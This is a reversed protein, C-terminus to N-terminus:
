FTLNNVHMKGKMKINYLETWNLGWTRSKTIGHVAAHWAERDMMLGPLRSLSMDMRNTIGDMRNTIGDLWRMRQRERRKRGEIKGLMWSKELSGTRRILHGFYQLKLKYITCSGTTFTFMPANLKSASNDFNCMRCKPVWDRSSALFSLSEFDNFPSSLFGQGWVWGAGVNERSGRKPGELSLKTHRNENPATRGERRHCLPLPIKCLFFHKKGWHNQADMAKSGKRDGNKTRFINLFWHPIKWCSACYILSMNVNNFIWKISFKYFTPRSLIHM